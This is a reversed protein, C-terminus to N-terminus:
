AAGEVGAAHGLLWAALRDAPDAPTPAAAQGASAPAAAAVPPAPPPMAMEALHRIQEAQQTRSVSGCPRRPEGEPVREVQLREWSRGRRSPDHVFLAANGGVLAAVGPGEWASLAALGKADEVQAVFVGPSVLPALAAPPGDGRVVLVIKQRGDLLDGLACARLDGGDVEAVVPPALSREAATWAGAPLGELLPDHVAPDYAGQRAASAVRAAAFARGIRCLADEVARRLDGGPPVAVHCPAAGAAAMAALVGHARRMGTVTSSDVSARRAVLAGFRSVDIRGAAFVGLEARENEARLDADDEHSALFTRVEEVADALASHFTMLPGDLAKMAADRRPDSPM